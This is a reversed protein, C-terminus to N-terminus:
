DGHDLIKQNIRDLDLPEEFCDFFDIKNSELENISFEKGLLMIIHIEPNVRKIIPAVDYGSLGPLQGRLILTDIKETISLFLADKGNDTHIVEHGKALFFDSLEERLKQNNDVILLRKRRQM